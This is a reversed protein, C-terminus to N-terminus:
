KQMRRKHLALRYPIVCYVTDGASLRDSVSFNSFSKADRGLDEDILSLMKNTATAKTDSLFVSSIIFRKGKILMERERVRSDGEHMCVTDRFLTLAAGSDYKKVVANEPRYSGLIGTELYEKYDNM